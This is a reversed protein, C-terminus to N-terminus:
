MKPLGHKKEDERYVCFQHKGGNKATYLAEDAKVYLTQFDQGSEPAFVVGLSCSITVTKGYNDFNMVSRECVDRLRKIIGEKSRTQPIFVAFEDGGMRSVIDNSRFTQTLLRAIAKLITDGFDHGFNDNVAKFNDVDIMIFASLTDTDKANVFSQMMCKELTTRNCLGTLPDQEALRRIRDYDDKESQINAIKWSAYVHGNEENKALFMSSTYWEYVGDERMDSRFDFSIRDQGSEFWKLIKERTLFSICTTQEETQVYRRIWEQVFSDYCNEKGFGHILLKMHADEQLFCDDTLDLESFLFADKAVVQRYLIERWRKEQLEKQASIDEVIMLVKQTNEGRDPLRCASVRKWATANEANFPKTSIEIEGEVHMKGAYIDSFLQMARERSGPQIWPISSMQASVNRVIDRSIGYRTRVVYDVTDERRDYVAMQVGSHLRMQRAFLEMMRGLLDQEMEPCTSDVLSILIGKKGYEISMNLVMEKVTGDEMSLRYHCVLSAKRTRVAEQWMELLKKGDHPAFGALAHALGRENGTETLVMPHEQEFQKNMYIIRRLIYPEKSEVYIRCIGIGMQEMIDRVQKEALLESQLDMSEFVAEIKKTHDMQELPLSDSLQWNKKWQILEEEPMPHAFCYGQQCDCGMDQLMQSQQATEVGEVVIRMCLAKAMKVINQMIHMARVPHEADQIFRLDIKLVDVSIDKLMNLFAYGSGFDDLIVQFGHYQFRHIANLLTKPNDKYSSNAIELELYKTELNYRNLLELIEDCLDPNYFNIRSLNVSVPLLNKGEQRRKAQFRCIEEIVYLDLRNMFGNQEFLSIFSGPYIWGKEPHHWRVLAEAGIVERDRINVLPQYFVKFQKRSLASEIESLLKKGVQMAHNLSDNYYNWRKTYSDQIMQLSLLAHELMEDAADQSAENLCIGMHLTVPYNLDNWAGEGSLMKEFTEMKQEILRKEACFAFLEDGVRGCVGYEWFGNQLYTAFQCLIRNVTKEGFLEQLVQYRDVSLVAMVFTGEMSQHLLHESHELFSEKNYLGTLTDRSARHLLETVSQKMQLSKQYDQTIDTLFVSFTRMTGYINRLRVSAKCWIGGEGDISTMKLPEPMQDIDVSNYLYERFAAQSSADLFGLPNQLLVKKMQERTMGCLDSLGQNYYSIQIQDNVILEMVAGPAADLMKALQENHEATTKRLQHRIRQYRNLMNKVQNKLMKPHYPSSVVYEAGLELALNREQEFDKGSPIGVMVPIDWLRPNEQIYAFLEKGNMRMGLELIVLDVYTDQLYELAESASAAEWIDYDGIFIERLVNRDIDSPLAVLIRLVDM